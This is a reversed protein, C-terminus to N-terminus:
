RNKPLRIRVELYDENDDEEMIADIGTSKITSVVQKISNLFIRFDKIVFRRTQAKNEDKIKEASVATQVLMEVAEETQRVTMGEEIIRKLLPLQENEPLKLLARAHRETLNSNKLQEKVQQPLKLLRLKNAITSQSKGIRQALVEQTLNFETILRYLGEAEELFNLNERQINEILAIAAMAGDNAEKVIASVKNYGLKTCAKFRREGAIIEYKDDVKRLIIPQLLGYTKISQALEDIKEDDFHKRPQFPNSTIKNIPIQQIEEGKELQGLLKSLQERM